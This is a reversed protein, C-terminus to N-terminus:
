CARNAGEGEGALEYADAAVRGEAAAKASVSRTPPKPLDILRCGSDTPTCVPKFRDAPTPEIVSSGVAAAARYALEIAHELTATPRGARFLNLSSPKPRM